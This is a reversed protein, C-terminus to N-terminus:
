FIYLSTSVGQVIFVHLSCQYTVKIKWSIPCNTNSDRRWSMKKTLLVCIKLGPLVFSPLSVLASSGPKLDEVNIVGLTIYRAQCIRRDLQSLSAVQCFVCMWLGTEMSCVDGVAMVDCMSLSM